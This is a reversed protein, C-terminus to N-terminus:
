AITKLREVAATLAEVERELSGLSLVPFTYHETRNLLIEGEVQIYLAGDDGMIQLTKSAFNVPRSLILENEIFVFNPTELDDFFFELCTQKSDPTLPPLHQYEAANQRAIDSLSQTSSPM